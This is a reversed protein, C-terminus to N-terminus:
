IIMTFSPPLVQAHNLEFRSRQIYAYSINSVAVAGGTLADNEYIRCGIFEAVSAAISGLFFAGGQSSLPVPILYAM